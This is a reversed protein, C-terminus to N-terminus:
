IRYLVKQNLGDANFKLFMYFRAILRWFLCIQVSSPAIHRTESFLHLLKKTVNQQSVINTQKLM